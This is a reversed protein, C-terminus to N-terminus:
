LITLKSGNGVSQDPYGTKRVADKKEGYRWGEARKHTLWADHNASPPADPNALVFEVGKVCSDRQWEPAEDWPAQSTDGLSKCYARNAEHCIEAIQTVTLEM